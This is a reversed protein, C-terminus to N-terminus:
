SSQLKLNWHCSFVAVFIGGFDPQNASAHWIKMKPGKPHKREKKKWVSPQAFVALTNPGQSSLYM